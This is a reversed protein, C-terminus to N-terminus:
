RILVPTGIPTRAALSRADWERMRICGHSARSGVSWPESTGHIGFGAGVGMYIGRLPNRPDGPPITQGALAGAWSSNPVHWAPNYDKSHIHFLGGPTGFGARGVAIGYTSVRRLRKFLRLRFGSRDVSIYTAYIARLRNTTIAPRTRILHVSIRRKDNPRLVEAILSKRLRARDVGLGYHAKRISPRFLGLRVTANRGPKNVKRGVLIPLACTQVGTM